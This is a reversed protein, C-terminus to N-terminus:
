ALCAKNLLWLTSFPLEHELPVGEEFSPLHPAKLTGPLHREGAGPSLASLPLFLRAHWDGSGGGAREPCRAAKGPGRQGRSNGGALSM